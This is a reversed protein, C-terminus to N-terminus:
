IIPSSAPQWCLEELVLSHHANKFTKNNVKACSTADFSAEMFELAQVLDSSEMDYLIFKIFQSIFCYFCPPIASCLLVPDSVFSDWGPATFGWCATQLASHVALWAPVFLAFVM